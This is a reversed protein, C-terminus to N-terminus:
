SDRESILVQGFGKTSAAGRGLLWPRWPCRKHANRRQEAHGYRKDAPVFGQDGRCVRAYNELRPLDFLSIPQWAVGKLPSAGSFISRRFLWITSIRKKPPNLWSSVASVRL